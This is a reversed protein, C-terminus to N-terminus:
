IIWHKEIRLLIRVLVLKSDDVKYSQDEMIDDIRYFKPYLYKITWYCPDRMFSLIYCFISNISCDKVKRVVPKKLLSNIYLSIFKVSAPLILQQMPSKESCKKRYFYLYNIIKNSLNEEIKLPDTNYNYYALLEKNIIIKTMTDVDVNFYIKSLDSICEISYNIIRLYRQDFNDIYLVALQFHYISGEKLNENSKMLFSFSFDPDMSNQKLGEGLKRGFQGIIEQVEFGLSHRLMVKVDYYNPRSLIRFLDFHMKELKQTVDNLVKSNISYFHTKGGTLYSIQSFTTIDFQTNGIVFLDVAIREESYEEALDKFQNHQPIFGQKLTEAKDLVKEDRVKSSGYGILCPNATFLLVRGGNGKLAQMSANVAAGSINGHIIVKQNQSEKVVQNIKEIIKDIDAKQEVCNKFLNKRPIPCFPRASDSVISVKVEEKDIYYYKLSRNDYTIFAVYSKESNHIM